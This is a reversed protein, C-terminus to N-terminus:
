STLMGASELRGDRVDYIRVRTSADDDDVVAPAGFVRNHGSCLGRDVVHHLHGHLVHVHGHQELLATMRAAGQLGDIWHWARIAHEFPSHHQVVVTVKKKLAHDEFRSELAAGVDDTLLGASRTIPQSCTVDIPMFCVDGWDLVKHPRDASTAAYAKLPGQIADRWGNPDTYADHNGPVLTVREPAIESDHLIEAFAEFEDRQGIETLDGSIVVHDAGSRKAVALARALKRTRRWADLRRGISLFRVGLSHRARARSPRPALMHVDSLHAIRITQTM